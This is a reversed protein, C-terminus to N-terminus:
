KLCFLTAQHGFKSVEEAAWLDEDIVLGINLSLIRHGKPYMVVERTDDMLIDIGFLIFHLKNCVVETTEQFLFGEGHFFPPSIMPFVEQKLGNSYKEVWHESVITSVGLLSKFLNKLFTPLRKVHCSGIRSGYGTGIASSTLGTPKLLKPLMGAKIQHM